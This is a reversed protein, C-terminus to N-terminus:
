KRGIAEQNQPKCVETGFHYALILAMCRALKQLKKLLASLVAEELLIEKFNEM